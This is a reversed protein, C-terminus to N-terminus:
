PGNAGVRRLAVCRLAVRGLWVMQDRGLGDWGLGIRLECPEHRSLFRWCGPRRGWLGPLNSGGQLDLSGAGSLGLVPGARNQVRCAAAPM